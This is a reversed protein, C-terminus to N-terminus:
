TEKIVRKTEAHGVIYGCGRARIRDGKPVNDRPRGAVSPLWSLTGSGKRDAGRRGFAMRGLDAGDRRLLSKGSIV